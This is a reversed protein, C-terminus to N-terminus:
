APMLNVGRLLGKAFDCLRQLRFKAFGALRCQGPFRVVRDRDVVLGALPEQLQDIQQVLVVVHLVHEGIELDRVRQDGPHAPSSGQFLDGRALSSVGAHPIFYGMVEMGIRWGTRMRPMSGPRRRVPQPTISISPLRSAKIPQPETSGGAPRGSALRRNAIWSPRAATSPSKLGASAATSCVKTLLSPTAVKFSPWARPTAISAGAINPIGTASYAGLWTFFVTTPAPWASLFWIRTISFIRSGFASGFDASAASANAIAM